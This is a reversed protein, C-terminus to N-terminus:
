YHKKLLNRIYEVDGKPVNEKSIYTILGNDKIIPDCRINGNYLKTPRLNKKTHYYGEAIYHLHPRQNEASLEEYSFCSKTKIHDKAYNYMHKKAEEVDKSEEITFTILTMKPKAGKLIKKNATVLSPHSRQYQLYRFNAGLLVDRTREYKHINRDIIDYMLHTKSQKPNESYERDFLYESAPDNAYVFQSIFDFTDEEYLPLDDGIKYTSTNKFFEKYKVIEM